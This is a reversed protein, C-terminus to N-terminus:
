HNEAQGHGLNADNLGDGATRKSALFVDRRLDTRQSGQHRPFHVTRDFQHQIPSFVHQGGALPMWRANAIPGAGFRVARNRGNGDIDDEVRARILRKRRGDKPAAYARCGTGIANGVDLHVGLRHGGIRHGVARESSEAAWLDDERMFRLHIQQSLLQPHVTGLDPSAIDQLRSIPGRGFLQEFVTHSNGFREITGGLHDAPLIPQFGNGREIGFMVAHAAAKADRAHQVANSQTALRRKQVLGPGGHLQLGVPRHGHRDSRHFHPLAERCGKQM